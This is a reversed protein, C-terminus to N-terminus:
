RRIHDRCRGPKVAVGGLIAVSGSPTPSSLERRWRNVPTLGPRILNLDAFFEGIQSRTRSTFGTKGPFNRSTLASRVGAPLLDYTAHSLVLFSGPALVETLARVSSYAYEDPLFHLVAALVLGVPRSLDLTHLLGDAHLISSPERLDADIYAIRGENTGTLLARAHVLVHPDNDAYVIRAAPSIQQAVDHTHNFTPLGPGVDLFQDIGHRAALYRVARGAFKHNERAAAIVGPYVAAIADGSERDAAFNDKGGLWYNYRRAPQPTHPDLRDGRNDSVTM